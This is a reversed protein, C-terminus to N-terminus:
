FLFAVRLGITVQQGEGQGAAYINSLGRSYVMHVQILNSEGANIDTGFSLQYGLDNRLYDDTVFHDLHDGGAIDLWVDNAKYNHIFIIGASGSLRMGRIVDKPTRLLLSIPLELTNFRLKEIYTSDVDGTPQVWPHSFSGGYNDQNIIGAGRQQVGFGMGVGLFSLPYYELRLNFGLSPKYYYDAPLNNGEISSLYLNHSIGWRLKKEFVPKSDGEALIQEKDQARAEQPILGGLCFCLFLFSRM